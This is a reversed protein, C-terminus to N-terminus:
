EARLALIPDVRVVRIAPVVTAVVAVSGLLVIGGAFTAPDREGVHFLLTTLYRSLALAGLTGAAVGAAMWAAGERVVLAVIDLPDAGLALRVAIERTRRATAYAVVGYVGVATLVMAILSFAGLVFLAFRTEAAAEDVYSQLSRLAYVPRGSGLGEITQKLLPAMEVPDRRTRVAISMDWPMARFPLWLQPLGDRRLDDAQIHGLVGVVEAWQHSPRSPTLQLRKGVATEGPWLLAALREDVMVAAIGRSAEDPGFMRGARLPVGLLEAYGPWAVLARAIREPEGPGLAFPLTLMPGALPIPLGVGVADVGPLDRVAEQAARYFAERQEVKQFHMPPLDVRVTAVGVPNFGLPTRRLEIFARMMLGAGVLLVLSLALQGAVILGRTMSAGRSSSADEKLMATVERRTVHWAPVLGFLATAAIAVGIAFLALHSDMVISERRPLAAPALALLLDIGWEALLLGGGAGVVAIVLSEVSLQQILHRRSAGVATRLALERTRAFARALLVNTLNACAVLMVFAVAGSLAVLAPRVDRVVDDDLPSLTVRVPGTRYTAPHDAALRAIVADIAAQAASVAVGSRLRAVVPYGRYTPSFDGPAIPYWIDVQPAISSSGGLYLRFGRPMVGVVTMRLNNVEIPRGIVSRDGQWRRQWLEYSINVGSIWATGADERASVQRGISPAVGLLPLFNDGISASEVREMNDVETLSTPSEHATAADEFLDTRARIALFEDGTLAPQRNFGPADVRFLVLRDADRYPLRDLLVGRVVSFVATTAGIGLAMVVLAAAAFTPNRSLIRVAFRLDRVLTM